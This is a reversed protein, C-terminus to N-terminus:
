LQQLLHSFRLFFLKRERLRLVEVVLLLGGLGLDEELHLTVLM